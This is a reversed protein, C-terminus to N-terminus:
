PRRLEVLTAAWLGEKVRVQGGGSGRRVGEQGGGSGRRAGEEAGGPCTFRIEWSARSRPIWAVGEKRILWLRCSPIISHFSSTSM